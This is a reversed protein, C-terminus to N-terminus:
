GRATAGGGGSNGMCRTFAPANPPSPLHREAVEVAAVVAQVRNHASVASFAEEVEEEAVAGVAEVAMVVLHQAPARALARPQRPQVM